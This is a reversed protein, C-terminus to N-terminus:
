KKKKWTSLVEYPDYSATIMKQIEAYVTPSLKGAEMNRRAQMLFDIPRKFKSLHQSIYASAQDKASPKKGGSGGGVAKAAQIQLQQTKTERELTPKGQYYGTIEAERLAKEVQEAPTLGQTWPLLAKWREQEREKESERAQQIINLLTLANRLKENNQERAAQWAQLALNAQTAWRQQALEAARQAAEESQGVMEQALSAIAANKAAEIRAAEERTIPVAPMQGFFGRRILDQEVNKLTEQLQQEYLPALRERARQQAEEWSLTPPPTYVFEPMQFPEVPQQLAQEIMAKYRELEDWYAKNKGAQELASKALTLARPDAYTRGGINAAYPIEYGGLFVRVQKTTPDQTWTLQEELGQQRAWERIPVTGPPPTTTAKSTAGSAPSGTVLESYTKGGYIAREAAALAQSVSAGQSIAKNYAEAFTKAAGTLGSTNITKGSSATTTTKSTAATAANSSGGTQAAIESRIRNAVNTYGGSEATRAMSEAMDKSVTVKRGTGLTVTVMVSM